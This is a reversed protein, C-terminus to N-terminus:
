LVGILFRSFYDLSLPVSTIDYLSTFTANLTISGFVDSLNTTFVASIDFALSSSISEVGPFSSGFSSSM